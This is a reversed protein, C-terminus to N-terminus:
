FKELVGGKAYALEPDNDYVFATFRGSFWIIAKFVGCRNKWCRYSWGGVAGM